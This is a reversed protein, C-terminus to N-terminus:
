ARAVQRKRALAFGGALAAALLLFPAPLPVPSVPPPDRPDPDGGGGGGTFSTGGGPGTGGSPRPVVSSSLPMIGGLPAPDELVADYLGAFLLGLTAPNNFVRKLTDTTLDYIYILMPDRTADVPFEPLRLPVGDGAAAFAARIYGDQGRPQSHSRLLAATDPVPKPLADAAPAFPVRQALPAPGADPAFSLAAAAPRDAPRGFRVQLLPVRDRAMYGPPLTLHDRYVKRIASVVAFGPPIAAASTGPVETEAMIGMTAAVPGERVIPGGTAAAVPLAVGFGAFVLALARFIHRSM